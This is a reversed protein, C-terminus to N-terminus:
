LCSYNYIKLANSINNIDNICGTLEVGTGIYNIGVLLAKKVM